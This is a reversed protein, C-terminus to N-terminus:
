NLPVPLSMFVLKKLGNLSKVKVLLVFRLYTVKKRKLHKKHTNKIKTPQLRNPAQSIKNHFFFFFVARIVENINSSFKCDNTVIM